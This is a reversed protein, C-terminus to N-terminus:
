ATKGRAVAPSRAVMLDHHLDFVKPGGGDFSLEHHRRGPGGASRVVRPLGRGCECDAEFGPSPSGVDELVRETRSLDQGRLQVRVVGEGQVVRRVQRGRRFPGRPDEPDPLVVVEQSLSQDGCPPDFNLPREIGPGGQLALAFVVERDKVSFLRGGPEGARSEDEGRSPVREGRVGGQGPPVPAM